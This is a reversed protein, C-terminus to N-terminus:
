VQRLQVLVKRKEKIWSCASAARPRLDLRRIPLSCWYASEGQAQRLQVLAKRKEKIWSCASAARPRLDLRRIPM